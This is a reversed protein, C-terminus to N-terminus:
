RDLIKEGQEKLKPNSKIVIDIIEKAKQINGTKKYTEALLFHLNANQPSLKISKKLFAILQDYRNLKEYTQSVIMIANLNRYYPYKKEIAKEFFIIANEFDNNEYYTIGLNWYSYSYEPNIELGKKFMKIAGRKDKLYYSKISGLSYYIEIRNPSAEKAKELTRQASQLYSPNFDTLRLYIQSLALLLRLDNPVAKLSKELENATFKLAQEVDKQNQGKQGSKKIIASSLRKRTQINLPTNYDLAKKFNKVVRKISTNPNNAFVTAYADAKASQYFRFNTQYIIFVFTLALFSIFILDKTQLNKSDFDKKEM